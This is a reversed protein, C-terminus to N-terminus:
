PTRGVGEPPARERVTPACAESEGVAEEGEGGEGFLRTQCRSPRPARAARRHRAHRPRIARKRAHETRRRATSAPAAPLGRAQRRALNLRRRELKLLTRLRAQRSGGARGQAEGAVRGQPYGQLQGKPFAARYADDFASERASREVAKAASSSTRESRGLAFGAGWLGGALALVAAVFGWRTRGSM